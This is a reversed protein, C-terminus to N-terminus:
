DPLPIFEADGPVPAFRQEGWDKKALEIRERSSSVFNWFMHRPGINDGGVVMVRSSERAQLAVKKGEGAVALTGATFVESDVEVAGVAVYFALEAEGEPLALRAGSELQVDLYLTRSFTEVPSRQGYAEGMIIRVRTGEGAVDPLASAPYHTFAADIEEQEAPLAIWSQIGHLISTQDLDAGARESHVIGSGAVMLNVAGATIPQEVGLSDRHMIEGEFLYTITAIGIHPHPRVAIGKGPPFEAPGMHDLFVFPGVMRQERNPLARRVTFEGLDAARTKARLAISGTHTSCSAERAEFRSM